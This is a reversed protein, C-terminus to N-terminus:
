RKENEKYLISHLKCGFPFSTKCLRFVSIFKFFFFFQFMNLPQKPDNLAKSNRSNRIPLSCGSVSNNSSTESHQLDWYGMSVYVTLSSAHETPLLECLMIASLHVGINSHQPTIGIRHLVKSLTTTPSFLSPPNFLMKLKVASM